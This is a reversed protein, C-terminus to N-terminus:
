LLQRVFESTVVDQVFDRFADTEPPPQLGATWRQSSSPSGPLGVVRSVLDFVGFAVALQDSLRHQFLRRVADATVAASVISAVDILLSRFCGAQRVQSGHAARMAADSARVTLMLADVIGRLPLNASLALYHQPELYADVAATVAGCRTHGLVTLLRLSPLQAVAYDLSGVCESGLVNGAVRVAFVENSSQSFVVEPPVRADSCGLLATIPLQKPARGPAEGLGLDEAAFPIVQHAPAPPQGPVLGAGLAAFAANGDDLLATAARADVPAHHVEPRDPDYVWRIEIM